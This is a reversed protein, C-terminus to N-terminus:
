IFQFTSFVGCSETIDPLDYIILNLDWNSFIYGLGCHISSISFLLSSSFSKGSSSSTSLSSPCTPDVVAKNFMKDLVSFNM